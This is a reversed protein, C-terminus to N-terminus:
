KFIEINIRYKNVVNNFYIYKENRFIFFLVRKNVSNCIWCINIGQNYSAHNGASQCQARKCRAPLVFLEVGTWHTSARLCIMRALQELRIRSSQGAGREVPQRKFVVDPDMVVEARDGAPLMGTVPLVFAAYM